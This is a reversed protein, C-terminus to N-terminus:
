SQGQRHQYAASRPFRLANLPASTSKQDTLNGELVNAFKGGRRENADDLLDLDMVGIPARGDKSISGQGPSGRAQDRNASLNRLAAPSNSRFFDRFSLDTAVFIEIHPPSSPELISKVALAVDVEAV